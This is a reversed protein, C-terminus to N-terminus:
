LGDVCRLLASPKLLFDSKFTNFKQCFQALALQGSVLTECLGNNDEDQGKHMTANTGVRPRKWAEELVVKRRLRAGCETSGYLDKILSKTRKLVM